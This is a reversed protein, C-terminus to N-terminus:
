LFPNQIVFELFKFIWEDAIYKDESEACIEGTYNDIIRANNAEEEANCFEQIAINEDNTTITVTKDEYYAIVSYKNEMEKKM